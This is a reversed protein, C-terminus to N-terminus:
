RGCNIEELQAEVEATSPLEAHISWRGALQVCLTDTTPRTFRMECHAQMGDTATEM